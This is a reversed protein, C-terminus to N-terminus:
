AAEPDGKSAFLYEVCPKVAARAATAFISLITAITLNTADLAGSNLQLTISGLFATIFTILSSVLYRKLTPNM